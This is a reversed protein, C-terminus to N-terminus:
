ARAATAPLEGSVRRYFELYRDAVHDITLNGRVWAKASEGMRRRREPSTALAVISAVMESESEPPTLIGTEGDRVCEPLGGVRTAVVPLGLLGAELVVAPVGESRSTMIFLDAAGMFNAVEDQTGFFRIRDTIGLDAALAESRARQPGDGVVWGHLGPVRRSAEALVRVFREPRKVTDLFGLFLLVVDEDKVGQARRLEQRAITVKLREPSVGNLIVSSPVRLDYLSRAGDLSYRSVGIVGDMHPMILKRYVLVSGWWRHWDAPIGINRYILKGHIEDGLLRKSLAGYKVTRSGNVQVFDPRFRGIERKVGALLGPEVKPFREFLHHESGRLCVDGDHLPLANAGEYAYLYVTRAEIGLEEFRRNLDYAFVEAGRRQPRQVLQLVRMM